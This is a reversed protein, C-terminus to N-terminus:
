SILRTSFSLSQIWRSVNNMNSTIAYFVKRTQKQISTQSIKRYWRFYFEMRELEESAVKCAALATVKFICYTKAVQFGWWAIRFMLPIWFFISTGGFAFTLRQKPYFINFVSTNSDSKQWKNAALLKHKFTNKFLLM